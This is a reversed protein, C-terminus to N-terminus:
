MRSRVLAEAEAKSQEYTNRYGQGVSLENERILGTRQGAVYATGVYAFSRLQPAAAAFDLVRRTGEVNLNRAEELSHDFRVAAASPIVRTTEAALREYDASALGCDPLSVDGALVEVRARDGEPVIADARQQATQGTRSRILLTLKARPNRELLESVLQTGLFGTAGTVLILEDNTM